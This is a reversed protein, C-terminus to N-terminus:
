LYISIYLIYIMCICVKLHFHMKKHQISKWSTVERVGTASVGYPRELRAYPCSSFSSVSDAVDKLQKHTRAHTHTLHRFECKIQKNINSKNNSDYDHDHWLMYLLMGCLSLVGSLVLSIMVKYQSCAAACFTLITHLFNHLTRWLYAFSFYRYLIFMIIVITM